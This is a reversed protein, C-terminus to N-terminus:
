TQQVAVQMQKNIKCNQLTKKQVDLALSFLNLIKKWDCWFCKGAQPGSPLPRAVTHDMADMNKMHFVWGGGGSISPSWVNTIHINIHVWVKFSEGGWSNMKNSLRLRWEKKPTWVVKFPCGSVVLLRCPRLGNGTKNEGGRPRADLLGEGDIRAPSHHIGQNRPFQVWQNIAGSLCYQLLHLSWGHVHMTITIYKCQIMDYYKTDYWMMDCWM